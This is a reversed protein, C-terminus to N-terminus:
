HPVRGLAAEDKTIIDRMGPDGSLDHLRRMVSLMELYSAVFEDETRERRLPMRMPQSMQEKRMAEDADSEMM